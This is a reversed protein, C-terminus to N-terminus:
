RNFYPSNREANARLEHYPGTEFQTPDDAVMRAGTCFTNHEKMCKEHMPFPVSGQGKADQGSWRSVIENPDTFKKLCWVCRHEDIKKNSDTETVPSYPNGHEDLIWGGPMPVRRHILRPNKPDADIEKKSVGWPISVSPRPLGEDWTNEPTWEKATKIIPNCVHCRFGHESAYRLSWNM